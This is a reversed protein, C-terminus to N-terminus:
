LALNDLAKVAADHLLHGYHDEIMKVSTGALQAVTLTAVGANVLDTIVSHRLTYASTAPDLKAALAAERIPGKWYNRDWAKLNERHFLPALPTKSKAQEALLALAVGSLPVSRQAHGKDNRVTLTGAAKNFDAVTLQAVAGPRVPLLCLARVFPEIEASCNALLAQRQQRELYLDRRRAAIKASIPKIAEKWDSNPLKAANLAARLPAMERNISSPARQHTAVRQRSLQVPRAKLDARWEALHRQRLKELTIKAIPHNYVSLRFYAEASAHTKAYKRCVEAVTSVLVDVEGGAERQAMLAEAAAKAKAFRESATFEGFSGLRHEKTKADLYTQVAWTGAAGDTSPRYGLFLGPRLRQWHPTRNTKPKLRDRERVTSLDLKAKAMKTGKPEPGNTRTCGIHVPYIPSDGSRM